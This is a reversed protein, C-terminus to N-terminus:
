EGVPGNLVPLSMLTGSQHTSFHYVLGLVPNALVLGEENNSLVFLRLVSGQEFEVVIQALGDVDISELMTVKMARAYLWADHFANLEDVSSVPQGRMQWRGDVLALNGLNPVSIATIKETASILTPDIIQTWDMSISAVDDFVLHLQQGLQVYRQYHLPNLEGFVLEYDNASVRAQPEALGYKELSSTDLAYANESSLFFLALIKDVHFQNAPLRRDAQALWWTGEEQELVFAENNRSQYDIKTIEAASLSTLKAIATGAPSNTEVRFMVIALVILLVLLALNLKARSMM